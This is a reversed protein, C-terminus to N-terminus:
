LNIKNRAAAMVEAYTKQSGPAITITIAARRPARIQQKPKQANRAEGQQQLSDKQPTPIKNNDVDKYKASRKAKRGLVTTWAAPASIANNGSNKASLQTPNSM